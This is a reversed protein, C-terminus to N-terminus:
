MPQGCGVLVAEKRARTLAVYILSREQKSLERLAVADSASQIASEPPCIDSDVDTVIVYDFELGKVRHMTSIRIGPQHREDEHNNMLVYSRYPLDNDLSEHWQDVLRNTRAVICIDRPDVRTGNTDDQENNQASTNVDSLDSNTEGCHKAIWQEVFEIEEQKSAFRRVTPKPGNVLSRSDKAPEENGELDDFLIPQANNLM